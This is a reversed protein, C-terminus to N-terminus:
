AIAREAANTLVKGAFLDEFAVIAIIYSCGDGSLNLCLLEIVIWLIKIAPAAIQLEIVFAELRGNMPLHLIVELEDTLMGLALRQKVDTGSVAQQRM